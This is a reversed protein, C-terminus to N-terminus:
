YKGDETEQLVLYNMVVYTEVGDSVFSMQYSNYELLRSLYKHNIKTFTLVVAHNGKFSLTISASQYNKYKNVAKNLIDLTVTDLESLGIPIPLSFSSKSKNKM